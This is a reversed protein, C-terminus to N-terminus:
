SVNAINKRSQGYIFERCTLPINIADCWKQRYSTMDANKSSPYRLIFSGDSSRVCCPDKLISSNQIFYSWLLTKTQKRCLLILLHSLEYNAAALGSTALDLSRLYKLLMVGVALGKKGPVPKTLPSFPLASASLPLLISLVVLGFISIHDITSAIYSPRSCRISM